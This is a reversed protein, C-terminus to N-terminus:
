RGTLCRPRRERFLRIEEPRSTLPIHAEPQRSSRWGSKQSLVHRRRWGECGRPANPPHGEVMSPQAAGPQARVMAMTDSSSTDSWQATSQRLAAQCDAGEICCSGSGRRCTSLHGTASSRCARAGGRDALSLSGRCRAVEQAANVNHPVAPLQLVTARQGKYLRTVLV